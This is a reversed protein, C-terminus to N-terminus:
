LYSKVISRYLETLTEESLVIPNNKLRTPNVSAALLAIDKTEFTVTDNKFYKGNLEHIFEIAEPVSTCNLTKAISTFLERLTKM